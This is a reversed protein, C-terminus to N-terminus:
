DPRRFRYGGDREYLKSGIQAGIADLVKGLTAKDATYTVKKGNFVGICTVAVGTQKSLEACVEPLPTHAYSVSLVKVLAGAPARQPTEGPRTPILPYPADGAAAVQDLGLADPVDKPQTPGTREPSGDGLWVKNIMLATERAAFVKVMIPKGEASLKAVARALDADPTYQGDEDPGYAIYSLRADKGVVVSPDTAKSGAAAVAQTVKLVCGKDDSSVVSGILFGEFDIIGAPQPTFSPKPVGADQGHTFAIGSWSGGILAAAFLIRVFTWRSFM